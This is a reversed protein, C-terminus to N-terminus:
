VEPPLHIQDLNLSLYSYVQHRPISVVHHHSKLIINTVKAILHFPTMYLRVLIKPQNNSNYPSVQVSKSYFVFFATDAVILSLGLRHLTPSSITNVLISGFILGKVKFSVCPTYKTTEINLHDKSLSLYRSVM